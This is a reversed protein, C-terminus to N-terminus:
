LQKNLENDINYMSMANLQAIDPKQREMNLRCQTM